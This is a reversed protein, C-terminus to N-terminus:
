SGDPDGPEDADWRALHRFRAVARRRITEDAAADAMDAEGERRRRRILLFYAVAGLGLGALTLGWILADTAPEM